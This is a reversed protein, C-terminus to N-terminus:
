LSLSHCKKLVRKTLHNQLSANNYINISIFPFNECIIMSYEKNDSAQDSTAIPIVLPMNAKYQLAPGLQEFGFLMTLEHSTLIHVM